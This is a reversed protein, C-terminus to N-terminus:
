RLIPSHPVVHPGLFQSSGAIFVSLLLFLYFIPPHPSLLTLFLHYLTSFALFINFKASPTFNPKQLYHLSSIPLLHSSCFSPEASTLFLSPFAFHSFFFIKELIFHLALLHQSLQLFFLPFTHCLFYVPAAFSLRRCSSTPFVLFLAQVPQWCGDELYSSWSCSRKEQIVSSLIHESVAILDATLIAMTVVLWASKRLLVASHHVCQWSNHPLCHYLGKACLHSIWSWSHGSAM